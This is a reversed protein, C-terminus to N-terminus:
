TPTAGRVRGSDGAATQAGRVARPRSGNRKPWVLYDELTVYDLESRLLTCIADEPSCVIPEGHLNFSTNLVGGCGTAGEWAKLLHHFRPNWEPTVVQPRCTLDYPHLAAILDRHALPTTHFALTMAPADIERRSVLYDWRREWLIAPAFPMWFDRQKIAANLRRVVSVDRADALISRNGLAREGWELRGTMRGVVRGELLLQVTRAEIDSERSWHIDDGHAELAATISTHGYEPGLYLPGFPVVRPTVERARCADWYASLAAGIAVSEDGCSPVVYLHDVGPMENLLMNLKVNMFVGGAVAVRRIGTKEIWARAFGEVIEETLQQLAGAVGDFRMGALDRRLLALLRPGWTGSTNLIRLGDASLRVYRSLVQYAREQAQSSAYPALGMVKYEDELAKLGLYQTTRLYIEGLSHYAHLSLLRSVSTRRGVSVTGSLGDGAGDLTIVLWPDNTGAWPGILGTCAHNRHHETFVLRDPPIEYEDMVRRFAQLDRRARMVRVYPGVLRSSGAVSAPLLSAVAAFANRPFKLDNGIGVLPPVITGIAVADIESGSWGSWALLWEVARVPIGGQGKNRTLREESVAALIKGDALLCASAARGDHIGLVRM